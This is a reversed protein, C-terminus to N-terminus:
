KSNNPFMLLKYKNDIFPTKPKNVYLFFKDDIIESVYTIELTYVFKFYYFIQSFEDTFIVNKSVYLFLSTQYKLIKGVSEM